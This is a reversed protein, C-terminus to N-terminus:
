PGGQATLSSAHRDAEDAAERYARMQTVSPRRIKRERNWLRGLALATVVALLLFGLIAFLVRPDTM